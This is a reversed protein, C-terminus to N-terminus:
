PRSATVLHFALDHTVPGSGLRAIMGDRVAAALEPLSGRAALEFRLPTGFCYGAAAAAVSPTSPRLIVHEIHPELGAAAFDARVLGVDSYGHPTRAIFDPVDGPFLDGLVDLLVDALTNRAVTDWIAYVTAGGPALVRAAERYAAPKDAFFMAGFQCLVLDVSGDEAPLADAGATQWTARPVRRAAYEVMSPNLDTALVEADPLARVLAATAIGTGAAVELVRGPALEAVAAAVHEACPAFLVPGLGDDYREPMGAAWVADTV